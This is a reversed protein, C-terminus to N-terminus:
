AITDADPNSTFPYDKVEYKASFAMPRSATQPAAKPGTGSTPAYSVIRL